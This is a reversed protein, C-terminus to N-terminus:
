IMGARRNSNISRWVDITLAARERKARLKEYTAIASFHGNWAEQPGQATRAVTERDKVTDGTAAKFAFAESLKALYETRAVECKAEALEEDTRALYALASEVKELDIM